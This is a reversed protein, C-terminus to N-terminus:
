ERVTVLLCPTLQPYVGVLFIGPIMRAVEGAPQQIDQQEVVAIMRDVVQLRAPVPALRRRRMALNRM